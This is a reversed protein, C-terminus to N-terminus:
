SKRMFASRDYYAAKHFISFVPEGEKNLLSTWFEGETEMKWGEPLHAKFFLDDVEEIFFFNFKEELEKFTLGGKLVKPIKNLKQQQKQKQKQQQEIAKGANGTSLMGILLEMKDAVAANEGEKGVIGGREKIKRLVWELDKEKKKKKKKEERKEFLSSFLIGAIGLLFLSFAIWVWARAWNLGALSLILFLVTLVTGGILLSATIKENTKM